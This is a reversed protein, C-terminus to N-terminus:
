FIHLFSKQPITLTLSRRRAPKRLRNETRLLNACLTYNCCWYYSTRFQSSRAALVGREAPCFGSKNEGYFGLTRGLLLM